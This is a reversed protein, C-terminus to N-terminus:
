NLFFYNMFHYSFTIQGFSVTTGFSWCSGCVSQDKVPTVAGYLRWDYEDPLDGLTDEDLVYPFPNGGNYVRSSRFGRLAKLEDQTRDSLHNVGLSFGLQERNKSHIFRLNQMFVSERHMREETTAYVIGHKKIFRMHELGVHSSDAPHIFEKMPNFTAYHGNGPGPFGICPKDTHIKHFILKSINTLISLLYM